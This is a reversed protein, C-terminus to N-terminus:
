EGSDGESPQRQYLISFRTLHTLRSYSNKHPDAKPLFVLLFPEKGKRRFVISSADLSKCDLLFTKEEDVFGYRCLEEEKIASKKERLYSDRFSVFVDDDILEVDFGDIESKPIFVVILLISFVCLLASRIKAGQNDAERERLLPWFILSRWTM